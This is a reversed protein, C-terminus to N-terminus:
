RVGDTRELSKIIERYLARALMPPVANGIQKRIEVKGFKYDTPFTQLCAYERTTYGRRGSPHYNEGGGCTITKALTSLSFPTKPPDFKRITDVDHNEANRPIRSIMSGITNYPRLGTEPTGHTPKPFPPLEEGPGSAIVVLRKRRQPVGYSACDVLRWRVSYGLDVFTHITANLFEGHRDQLGSTEEMTFIRPKGKEVVQRVSFICAENADDNPGAITKAPSFTQCPPSCHIVDVIIDEPANTLFDAVESTECIADHYNRRYTGMAHESKDFGWSVELGAQRAGCSVGGAGCFGDGFTYRRRNGLGPGRSGSLDIVESSVEEAPVRFGGGRITTKRWQERLTNSELGCEKDTDSFAISVMAEEETKEKRGAKWIKLHKFRCFLYAESPDASISWTKYNLDEYRRNTLKIIRFRKVDSVAADKVDSTVGMSAEEPTLDVSWILENTRRPVLGEMTSSREFHWGRLLVEERQKIISRIRLFTGDNLEVNKGPKFLKGNYNYKELITERPPLELPSSTPPSPNKLNMRRLLNQVQADDMFDGDKFGTTRKAPCHSQSASTSFLAPVANTKLPRGIDGDSEEGLTESGDSEDLTVIPQRRM